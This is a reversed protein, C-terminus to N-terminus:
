LRRRAPPRLVRRPPGRCPELARLTRRALEVLVSKLSGDPWHAVAAFHAAVEASMADLLRLNDISGLAGQPFPVASSVPFAVGPAPDILTLDVKAAAALLFTAVASADADLKVTCGGPQSGTCAPAGSWASFAYGAAPEATLQVETGAAAKLECTGPCRIGAPISVVTGGASPSVSVRLTHEAPCAGCDDPCSRCNESPACLGDGCGTDTLCTLGM